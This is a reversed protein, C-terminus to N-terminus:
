MRLLTHNNYYPIVYQVLFHEVHTSNITNTFNSVLNFKYQRKVKPCCRSCPEKHLSQFVECTNWNQNIISEEQMMGLISKEDIVDDIGM